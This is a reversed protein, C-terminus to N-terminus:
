RGRRPEPSPTPTPSATPPVEPTPTPTATPGSPTPSATPSAPSTAPPTPRRPVATPSPSATPESVPEDAPVPNGGGAEGGPPADGTPSDEPDAGVYSAQPPAPAPTDSTGALWEGARLALPMGAVLTVVFIGVSQVLTSREM